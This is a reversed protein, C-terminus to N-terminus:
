PLEEQDHCMSISCTNQQMGGVIKCGYKCIGQDKSVQDAVSNLEVERLTGVLNQWTPPCIEAVSDQKKLWANVMDYRFTGSSEHDKLWRYSLGMQIGLETVEAKSLNRLYKGVAPLDDEAAVFM